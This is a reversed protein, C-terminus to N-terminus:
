SGKFYCKSKRAAVSYVLLSHSLKSCAHPCCSVQWTSLGQFFFFLAFGWVVSTCIICLLPILKIREGSRLQLHDAATLGPGAAKM